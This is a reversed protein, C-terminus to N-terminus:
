QVTINIKTVTLISWLFKLTASVFQATVQDIRCYSHKRKNGSINNSKLCQGTHKRLRNYMFKLTSATTTALPDM